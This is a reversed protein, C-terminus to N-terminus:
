PKMPEDISLFWSLSNWLVETSIDYILDSFIWKNSLSRNEEAEQVRSLEIEM